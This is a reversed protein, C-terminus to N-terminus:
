CKLCVFFDWASFFFLIREFVHLHSLWCYILSSSSILIMFPLSFLTFNLFLLSPFHSSLPPCSIFTFNKVKKQKNNKEGSSAASILIFVQLDCIYFETILWGALFVKKYQNNFALSRGRYQPWSDWFVHLSLLLFAFSRLFVPLM